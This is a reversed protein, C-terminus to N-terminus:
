STVSSIRALTDTIEYMKFLNTPELIAEVAVETIKVHQGHVRGSVTAARDLAHGTKAREVVPITLEFVVRPM